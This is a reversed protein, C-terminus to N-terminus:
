ALNAVVLAFLCSYVFSALATQKLAANLREGDKTITLSHAAQLLPILAVLFSYHWWQFPWQQLYLTSSGVAAFLLAYQYKCANNRGLKLALTMKGAQKDTVMDRTNNINLVATALCGCGIAPLLLLWQLFQGYLYFSGLVAVLGFFIFVSIDGYGRYGYPTKGMTYTVAALMAVAGLLVFGLLSWWNSAFAVYLLLLGSIITLVSTFGIAQQMQKATVLGAQMVRQPGIRAENDAGTVADGYDNALNSIVQLLIATTLCLTLILGDFVGHQFALGAALLIAGCALPLTRPRIAPLWVAVFRSRSM